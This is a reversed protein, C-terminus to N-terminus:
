VVACCLPMGTKREQSVMPTLLLMLFLLATLGTTRHYNGYNQSWIAEYPAEPVLWSGVPAQEAQRLMIGLATFGNPDDSTEREWGLSELTQQTIPGAYKARYYQYYMDLPDYERDPPRMQSAVMVLVALLVFTILGSCDSATRM